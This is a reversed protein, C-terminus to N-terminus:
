VNLWAKQLNHEHLGKVHGVLNECGIQHIMKAAFLMTREATEAMAYPQAMVLRRLTTSVRPQTVETNTDAMKAMIGVRRFHAWCRTRFRRPLPRKVRPNRVHGRNDAKHKYLGSHKRDKDQDAHQEKDRRDNHGEVAYFGLAHGQIFNLGTLRAIQLIAGSVEFAPLSPACMM